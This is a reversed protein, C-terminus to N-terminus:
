RCFRLVGPFTEQLSLKCDVVDGPHLELLLRRFTYSPPLTQNRKNQFFVELTVTDRSLPINPMKACFESLTTFIFYSFGNVSAKM